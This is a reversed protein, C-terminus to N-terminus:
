KILTVSGTLNHSKGDKDVYNIKYVYVNNESLQGKFTGDWGKKIDSSQFLLTGGRNFILMEFKTTNNAIAYFVDNQGDGNPTFANPVYFNPNEGVFVKKTIMNQCGKDTKVKLTVDYKGSDQYSYNPNQITSYVDPGLGFTWYWSTISGNNSVSSLDNFMVQPNAFSANSTNNFDAVPVPYVELTKIKKAACGKADTVTVSITYTGANTYNINKPNSTTNIANNGLTWSYNLNQNSNTIASFEVNNRPACGSLANSMDIDVAPKAYVRTQVTGSAICGLPDKMTITYVGSSAPSADQVAANATNATFSNPGSWLYSIGSGDLTELYIVGDECLTGTCAPTLIKPAQVTVLTTATTVCGQPSTITVTYIGSAGSNPNILNPNQQTSTYGNPGAWVFTGVGNAVLHITNGSCGPGNNSATVAVTNVVVAISASAYCHGTLTATVNYVGGSNNATTLTPNQLTSSFNSAGTWNYNGAGSATLSLTSGSCVPGNSNATMTAQYIALNVTAVLTCGNASTTTCTFIGAMANTANTIIPNQLQSSFNNPGSWNFTTGNSINSFNATGGICVSANVSLASTPAPYVEVTFSTTANCPGCTAKNVTVTYIGAATYSHVTTTGSGTPSGDGYNWTYIFGSTLPNTDTFTFNPSSLCTNPTASVTIVPPSSIVNVTVVGPQILTCPPGSNGNGILCSGMAQSYVTNPGAIVMSSTSTSTSTNVSTGTGTVLINVLWVSFTTTSSLNSISLTNIAGTTFTTNTTFGNPTVPNSATWSYTPIITATGECTPFSPACGGGTSCSGTWFATLVVGGCCIITPPSASLNLTITGGTGNNPPPAIGPVVFSQTAMWPGISGNMVMERTRIYYTKGPCLGSFPIFTPHYPEQVCNDIWGPFSYGPVNLLSNFYPFSVYSTGTNNWNTLTSTLCSPQTGIFNPSCSIETQIWYPGCGCTAPSSNANITVGTSGVTVVYNLLPQGHCAKVRNVTVLTILATILLISKLQKM